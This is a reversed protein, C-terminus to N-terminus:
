YSYFFPQGNSGRNQKALKMENDELKKVVTVLVAFYILDPIRLVVEAIFAGLDFPHTYPNLNKIWVTVIYDVLIFGCFILFYAANSILLCFAKTSASVDHFSTAILIFSIASEVFGFLTIFRASVAEVFIPSTKSFETIYLFSASYAALTRLLFFVGYGLGFWKWFTVPRM